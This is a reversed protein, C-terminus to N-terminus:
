APSGLAGERVTELRAILKTLLHRLAEFEAPSLDALGTNLKAVALPTLETLKDRGADTLALAVVRRDQQSRERRLHGREELSDILRTVAGTDYHLHKCLDGATNVQGEHLKTLVLWQMFSLDHGTFALTACDHMLTHARKLLHPICGESRFTAADYHQNM